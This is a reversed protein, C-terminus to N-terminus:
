KNSSERNNITNQHPRVPDARNSPYIDFHGCGMSTQGGAHLERGAQLMAWAEHTIETLELQWEVGRLHRHPLPIDRHKESVISSIWPREPRSLETKAGHLNILRQLRTQLSGFLPDGAHKSVLPSRFVVRCTEPPLDDSVLPLAQLRGSFGKGSQWVPKNTAADYAEILRVPQGGFELNGSHAALADLWEAMEAVHEGLWRLGVHWRHAAHAPRHWGHLWFPPLAKEDLPKFLTPYACGALIPCNQCAPASRICVRASLAQGLLGRWATGAYGNGQGPADFLLTLGWAQLGSWNLHWPVGEGKLNQEILAPVVDPSLTKKIQTPMM